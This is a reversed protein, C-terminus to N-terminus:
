TLFEQSMKWDLPRRIEVSPGRTVSRGRGKLLTLPGDFFRKGLFFKWPVCL